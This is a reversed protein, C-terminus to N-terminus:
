PNVYQRVNFNLSMTDSKYIQDKLEKDTIDEFPGLNHGTINYITDNSYPGDPNDDIFSFYYM